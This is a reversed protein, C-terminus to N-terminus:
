SKRERHNHIDSRRRTQWRRLSAQPSRYDSMQWESQAQVRDPSTTNFGAASLQSAGEVYKPGVYTALDGIEITNSLQVGKIWNVHASQALSLTNVAHRTQGTSAAADTISLISEVDQTIVNYAEASVTATITNDANKNHVTNTVHPTLVAVLQRTVRVEGDGVVLAGILQRSVRIEGDGTALAEVHQRSVRLTM